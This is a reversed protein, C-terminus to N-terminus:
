AYESDDLEGKAWADCIEKTTFFYPHIGNRDKMEIVDKYVGKLVFYNGKSYTFRNDKDFYHGGERFLEVQGSDLMKKKVAIGVENTYTFNGYKEEIVITMIKPFDEVLMFKGKTRKMFGVIDAVIIDLTLKM